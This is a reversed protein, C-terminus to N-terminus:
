RLAPTTCGQDELAPPLEPVPNEDNFNVKLYDFLLDYEFEDLVVWRQDQHFQKVLSWHGATRQGRLACVFSHCNGCNMILLDRERGPPALADLDVKTTGPRPTPTELERTPTVPTPVVVMRPTPFPTPTPAPGFCSIIGLGLTAFYLLTRLWGLNKM